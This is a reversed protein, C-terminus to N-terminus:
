VLELIIIIMGNIIHFMGILQSYKSDIIEKVNFMIQIKQVEAFYLMHPIGGCIYISLM